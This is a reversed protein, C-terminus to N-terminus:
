IPSSSCSGNKMASKMYSYSIMPGVLIITAM